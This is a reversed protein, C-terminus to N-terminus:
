ASASAAAPEILRAARQNAQAVATQIQETIKHQLATCTQTIANKVQQQRASGHVKIVNGNLGLLPAGGHEEPDMKHKISRFAGKALAAGLQRLPNATLARKLLRTFGTGMGEVTKLVINGVFGDTVVVDVKDEFIDRGEVYGLFNLDVEKCLRLAERTVETGKMEESGNSLIGVRPQKRGLMERAYVHGMVAFQLLHLPKCEPTAGGDLLVFQSQGTPIMTAIAPREVSDLRGLKYSAAAVLGGTNGPSIVAETRREQVLDIARAMSCDKKKRVASRPDDEMTLVESAHVIRIRRDRCQARALGAEIQVQDGVLCLETITSNAQLGLAAGEILVQPGHDGGMVDVGIRM